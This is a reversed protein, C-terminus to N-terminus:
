RIDNSLDSLCASTFEGALDKVGEKTIKQSLRPDNGNLWADIRRRMCKGMEAQFRAADFNPGYAKAYQAALEKSLDEVTGKSLVDLMYQRSSLYGGHIKYGFLSAVLMLLSSILAVKAANKM